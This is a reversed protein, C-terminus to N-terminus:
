NEGEVCRKEKASNGCTDLSGGHGYPCGEEQEEGCELDEGGRFPFVLGDEADVLKGRVSDFHGEGGLFSGGGLRAEIRGVAEKEIAVPFEGPDIM